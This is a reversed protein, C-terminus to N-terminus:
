FISRSLMVPALPHRKHSTLSCASLHLLSGAKCDQLLCLGARPLCRDTWCSGNHPLLLPLLTPRCSCHTCASSLGVWSLLPAGLCSARAALGCCLSTGSLLMRVSSRLSGSYSLRVPSKSSMTAPAPGDPRATASLTECAPLLGDEVGKHQRQFLQWSQQYHPPKPTACTMCANVQLRSRAPKRTQMISGAGSACQGFM